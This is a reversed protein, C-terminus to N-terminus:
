MSSVEVPQVPPEKKEALEMRIQDTMADARRRMRRADGEQGREVGCRSIRSFTPDSGVRVCRNYNRLQVWKERFHRLVARVPLLEHVVRVNEDCAEAEACKNGNLRNNLDGKM